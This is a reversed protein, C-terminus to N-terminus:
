MVGGIVVQKREECRPRQALNRLYQRETDTMGIAAFVATVALAFALRKM